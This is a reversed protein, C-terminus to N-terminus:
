LPSMYHVSLVIGDYRFSTGCGDRGDYACLLFYNKRAIVGEMLHKIPILLAIIQYVPNTLKLM